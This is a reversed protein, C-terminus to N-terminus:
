AGAGADHVVVYQMVTGTALAPEWGDPGKARHGGETRDRCWRVVSGVALRDAEDGTILENVPGDVLNPGGHEHLLKLAARGRNRRRLQAVIRDRVPMHECLGTSLLNVLRSVDHTGTVVMVVVPDGHRNEYAQTDYAM